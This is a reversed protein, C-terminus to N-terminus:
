AAVEQPAEATETAPAETAPAEAPQIAAVIASRVKEANTAVRGLKEAIVVAEAPNATAAEMLAKFFKGGEAAIIDLM